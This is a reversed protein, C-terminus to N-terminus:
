LMQPGIPIGSNVLHRAAYWRGWASERAMSIIAPDLQSDRNNLYKLSPSAEERFRAPIFRDWYVAVVISLLACGLWGAAWYYTGSRVDEGGLLLGIFPISVWFVALRIAPLLKAPIASDSM